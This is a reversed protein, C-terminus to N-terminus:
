IQIIKDALQLSTVIDLMNTTEGVEKKELLDFHELCTGCVLIQIGMDRLEKLVSLLKSGSVTLRVGNNMFVIRWLDEMEKLTSIFNQMLKKGLEDDGHGIKDSTILILTKGNTEGKEEEVQLNALCAEDELIGVIKIGKGEKKEVVSFGQSGLFRSVNQRAAENDVIVVIEKPREKEIADKTRLVPAPCALGRADVEIRM